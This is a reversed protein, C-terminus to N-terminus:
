AQNFSYYPLNWRSNSLPNYLTGEYSVGFGGRLATKGNGFVDYAFGFRPGFDNHDGKGLNSSPAFGGPGCVGALQAKRIQDPTDCGPAGAPINSAILQGVIGGSGPPLIFTTALNDEENHRTYLDYRLGLNLTLKRSAKWDDQVYAGVEINRWHRFNDGLAAPRGASSGALGPDVGGVMGYPSDSAFYLPDFFYYSPRAVNFESNEINRRIDAGVKINHNGHNISVMDGYSYEHDKFFQPYGNYSGFGTTGDDFGISPVGPLSVSTGTNNQTYGARFENLVSPSFTHVFSFQGNPFIGRTPNSFGRTCAATCNGFRDTEKLLNVQIFMRNSSNWNYDLRMSGENGNFLNGLTQTQSKFIATSTELFTGTRAFTGTQLAPITSCPAGLIPVNAAMAAQDAPTVGLLTAFNAAIAPSSADPCLYDAYSTNGSGSLQATTVYQDMTNLPTGGLTPAFNKYLLAATSNPFATEVAQRWQPSEVTISAPPAVTNFHDRQFAGFFFLKDKVIPGGITFGLQNFRLAPKFAKNPNFPNPTRNLFFENADFVDNRVYDWVSGHFANTGSKTVLNNVSGASSGYQASMNLQLQQFEQVTDQIPVNVVGGSLDKNSVGNIMFGNFNERLGNVVTGHGNEFDVGMVNVAGPALQILDYVNRGNLPLNSIQTSTVTTSLKSDETNVPPAAGSVEVTQSVQGVELHFDARQVTGANLSMNTLTSTKFGQAQASVSYQGAPLERVVFSGTQNSTVTQTLGTATNKVTVKANPIAAGSQDLVTGSFQGNQIQAPLSFAFVFVFVFLATARLWFRSM